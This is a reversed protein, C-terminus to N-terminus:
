WQESCPHGRNADASVARQHQVLAFGTTAQRLGNLHRGATSVARTDTSCAKETLVTSQNTRLLGGPDPDAHVTSAPGGVVDDDPPQPAADFVLFDIEPIVCVPHGGMLTQVCAESHVVCFEYPPVPCNEIRTM